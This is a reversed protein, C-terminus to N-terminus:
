DQEGIVHDYIFQPTAALYVTTGHTNMWQMNDNLCPTGGGCAIICNDKGAFSRLLEKEKERFFAEGEQEFIEAVTKGTQEEILTDLDFFSYGTEKSWLKGWHTKGTGMFGILFIKNSPQM